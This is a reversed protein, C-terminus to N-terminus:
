ENHNGKWKNKFEVRRKAVEDVFKNLKNVKKIAGDSDVKLKNDKIVGVEDGFHTIRTGISDIKAFMENIMLMSDNLRRPEKIVILKDSVKEEPPYLELSRSGGLGSFEVNAVVGKPLVLDKDNIVFRLYVRDSLLKIDKIYGVQVGMYKVPSGIIMGDVDSMFVQYSPLERAKEYKHYRYTFVCICLIIFWILFELWTYLRINERLKM